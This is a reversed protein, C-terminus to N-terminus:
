QEQPIKVAISRSKEESGKQPRTDTIRLEYFGSPIARDFELRGEDGPILGFIGDRRILEYMFRGDLDIDLNKVEISEGGEAQASSEPQPKAYIVMVNKHPKLVDPRMACFLLLTFCWLAGAGTFRVSLNDLAPIKGALQATGRNWLVTAALFAVVTAFVWWLATFLILRDFSLPSSM